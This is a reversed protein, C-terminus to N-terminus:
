FCQIAYRISMKCWNGIMSFLNISTTNPDNELINKLICWIYLQCELVVQKCMSIADPDGFKSALSSEDLPEGGINVIIDTM